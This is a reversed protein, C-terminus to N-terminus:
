ERGAAASRELRRIRAALRDLDSRLEDVGEFFHAVEARAPLDRREEQLYEGLNAEWAERAELAWTRAARFLRGLEHAAVDGVLRSAKEEWDPEIDAILQQFQQGVSVSGTLEVRIDATPDLALQALTAPTGRLTVDPDMDCHDSVRVREDLVCLYLTGFAMLDLAMVRGDMRALRARVEPDQDLYANLGAEALAAIVASPLLSRAAM